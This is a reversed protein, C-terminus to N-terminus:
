NCAVSVLIRIHLLLKISINSNLTHHSVQNFLLTCDIGAAKILESHGGPHFALYHTINYVDGVLLLTYHGLVTVAALAASVNNM